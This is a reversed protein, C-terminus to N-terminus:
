IRRKLEEIIKKLEDIQVQQSEIIKQQEQMAKVMPAIFDTYRLSLKREETGDINLVNYETGLLSEIDQAIFGFDTLGNGNIMKFSVPRLSMVFDLGYGIDQIDKKDRVDSLNSWAVQGGIVSVLTDGIRVKNSTSVSANRGIATANFLNGGSVGAGHGIATNGQGTTNEFLAWQGIATNYEGTTNSGLTDLGIATNDKGTTNDHLARYGVATNYLGTTNAHLALSGVATNDIGEWSETPQNSYLAEFGVATNYSNWAVGANSFSQTELASKGFATNGGATTNGYLANVGGATNDTGTTNAHLAFSGVATNDVGNSSATPQNSYLAELGVATNYSNWAVGANNYSQTELASKGFATNGSATSNGLMAYYGGVTNDAGATNNALSFSGMSTNRSGAANSVLAYNGSGTNGSGTITLNGANVGAFFNISGYAHILRNAGSKIIGASASTVPLNLNASLTVDNSFTKVGGVTQPNTLDVFNKTSSGTGGNAIAVPASLSISVDGSVGGGTLGTGATVGTIDGGSNDDVECTVTGTPSIVRISQGPPCSDSVRTQLVTTDANLTVTGSLGGGTLGTGATVGTIDGIGPASLTGDVTLNGTVRADGQFYGAYGGTSNGFVGYNNTGDIYGLMGYSDISVGTTHEGYVGAAGTGSTSGVIADEGSAGTVELNGDTNSVGTIVNGDSDISVDDQAFVNLSILLLGVMIIFIKKMTM